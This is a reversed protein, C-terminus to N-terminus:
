DSDPTRHTRRNYYGLVGDLLVLFTRNDANTM